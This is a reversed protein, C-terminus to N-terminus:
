NFRDMCEVLTRVYYCTGTLSNQEWHCLCGKPCKKVFIQAHSEPQHRLLSSDIAPTQVQHGGSEPNGTTLRAEVM